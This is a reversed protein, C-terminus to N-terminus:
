PVKKCFESKGGQKYWINILGGEGVQRGTLYQYCSIDWKLIM